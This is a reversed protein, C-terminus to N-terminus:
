SNNSENPLVLMYWPIKTFIVYKRYIKQVYYNHLGGDAVSSRRGAIASKSRNSLEQVKSVGIQLTQESISNWFNPMNREHLSILLSM